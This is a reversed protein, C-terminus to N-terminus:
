HSKGSIIERSMTQSLKSSFINQNFMPSARKHIDLIPERNVLSLSKSIRCKTNEM